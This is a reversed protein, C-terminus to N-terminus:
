QLNRCFFWFTDRIQCFIFRKHQWMASCFYSYQKRCRISSTDATRKCAHVFISAGSTLQMTLPARTSMLGCNSCISNWNTLTTCGRSTCESNSSVVSGTILRILTLATRQGFLRRQRISFDCLTDHETHQPVTRNFSSSNWEGSVERMM